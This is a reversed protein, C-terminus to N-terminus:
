QTPSSIPSLPIYPGIPSSSAQEEKLLEDNLRDLVDRHTPAVKPDPLVASEILIAPKCRAPDFTDIGPVIRQWLADLQRTNKALIWFQISGIQVKAATGRFGVFTKPGPTM